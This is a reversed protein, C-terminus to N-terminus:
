LLGTGLVKAESNVLETLMGVDLTRRSRIFDSILVAKDSHALVLEVLREDKLVYEGKSIDFVEDLDYPLNVSVREVMILASCQARVEDNEKSYDVSAPLQPYYHLSDVLHRAAYYMSDDLERFFYLQESMEYETEGRSLSTGVLGLGPALNSRAEDLKELLEDSYSNLAARMIEYAGESMGRSEFHDVFDSVIRQRDVQSVAPKPMPVDLISKGRGSKKKYVTTLRGNKDVTPTPELNERSTM